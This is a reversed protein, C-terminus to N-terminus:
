LNRIYIVLHPKARASIFRTPSLYSQTIGNLMSWAQATRSSTEHLMDSYSVGPFPEYTPNGADQHTTSIINKNGM